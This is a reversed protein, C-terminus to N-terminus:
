ASGAKCIWNLFEIRLRETEKKLRTTETERQLREEEAIKAKRADEIEKAAQGAKEVKLKEQREIEPDFFRNTKSAM